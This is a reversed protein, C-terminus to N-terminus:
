CADDGDWQPVLRLKWVQQRLNDPCCSRGKGSWGAKRPRGRDDLCLTQSEEPGKLKCHRWCCDAARAGKIPRGCHWDGTALRRSSARPCYGQQPSFRLSHARADEGIHHAAACGSSKAKTASNRPSYLQKAIKEQYTGLIRHIRGIVANSTTGLEIAIEIARRKGWMNRLKRDRSPTWFSTMYGLGSNICLVAAPSWRRSASCWLHGLRLELCAPLQPFRPRSPHDTVSGVIGNERTYPVRQGQDHPNSRSIGPLTRRGRLSLSRVRRTFRGSPDRAASLTRCIRARSVEGSRLESRSGNASKHSGRFIAHIIRWIAPEDM